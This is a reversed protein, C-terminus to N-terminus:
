GALQQLASSLMPSDKLAELIKVEQEYLRQASSYENRMNLLAAYAGLQMAYGQSTEGDLKKSLAMMRQYLADVEDLRNGQWVVGVMSSLATFVERSEAGHQKEALLLMEKDLQAAANYDGTTQLMTALMQKRRQTDPSEEGLIKKSREYAKKWIKVATFQTTGMAAYGDKDLQELELQDASKTQVPAPRPPKPAKKPQAFVASAWVLVVAVVVSARRM